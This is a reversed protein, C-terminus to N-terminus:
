PKPTISFYADMLRIKSKFLDEPNSVTLDTIFQILEQLIQTNKYAYIGLLEMNNNKPNTILDVAYGMQTIIEETTFHPTRVTERIHIHREHRVKTSLIGPHLKAISIEGADFHEVSLPDTTITINQLAFGENEEKQNITARIQRSSRKIWQPVIYGPVPPYSEPNGKSLVLSIGKYINKALELARRKDQEALESNKEPNKMSGIAEEKSIILREVLFAIKTKKFGISNKGWKWNQLQNNNGSSEFMNRFYEKM